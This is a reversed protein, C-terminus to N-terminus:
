RIRKISMEVAQEAPKWHIHLRVSYPLKIGQPSLPLTAPENKLLVMGDAAASRSIAAHAKLGPNNAYPYKKAAPSTLVCQLIYRVNKNIDEETIEGKTLGDKIEDEQSQEGPMLLNNGALVQQVTVLDKGIDGNVIRPFGGHWDSMVMGTFGWEDRLLTTLLDKRASTYQGNVKNYSSMLAKPKAEKVVIEFGRLYIERLARQSIRADISM